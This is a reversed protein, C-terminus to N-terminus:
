MTVRAAFLVDVTSGTWTFPQSNGYWETALTYPAPLSTVVVQYSDGSVMVSPSFYYSGDNATSQVQVFKSATRDLLSVQAGSIGAGNNNDSVSGEVCAPFTNTVTFQTSGTLTQSTSSGLVLYHVTFAWVHTGKPENCGVTWGLYWIGVKEGPLVTPQWRGAGEVLGSSTITRTATQPSLLSFAQTGSATVTLSFYLKGNLTDLVDIETVTITKGIKERLDAGSGWPLGNHFYLVVETSADLKTLLASTINISLSPGAPSAIPLNFFLLLGLIGVLAAFNVLRRVSMKHGWNM